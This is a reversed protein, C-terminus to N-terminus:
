LTEKWSAKMLKMLLLWFLSKKKKSKVIWNWKNLGESILCSYYRIFDEKTRKSNSKRNFFIGARFWERDGGIRNNRPIRIYLRLELLYGHNKPWVWWVLCRSFGVAISPVWQWGTGLGWKILLLVGQFARWKLPIGGALTIWISVESTKITLSLM